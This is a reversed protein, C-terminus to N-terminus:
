VHDHALPAPEREKFEEFEKFEKMKKREKRDNAAIRIQSKDNV